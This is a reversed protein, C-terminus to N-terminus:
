VVSVSDVYNTFISFSIITKMSNEDIEANMDVYEEMKKTFDSTFENCYTQFGRTSFLPDTNRGSVEKSKIFKSYVLRLKGRMSLIDSPSYGRGTPLTFLEKSNKRIFHAYFLQGNMRRVPNKDRYNFYAGSAMTGQVEKFFTYDLFPSRHILHSQQMCLEAGFYNRLSEEWMLYYLRANMPLQSNKKRVSELENMLKQYIKEFHDTNLFSYSPFLKLFDKLAHPLGSQLWYFFVSTTLVGDLHSARLLESGCNGSVMIGSRQSLIESGYHYHARGITSLGNSEIVIQKASNFYAETLYKQDILIPQYDIGARKSIMVPINVDDSEKTGFSYAIFEKKNRICSSVISRGDFGSTLAVNFLENPLYESLQNSFTDVLGPLSKKLSKPSDQFLDSIETHKFFEWENDWLKLFSNGAMQGIGSICTRNTLTYNFLIRELFHCDDIAIQNMYPLLDKVQDSVYIRNEVRTYFVPLLSFMSNFILVLRESYYIGNFNGKASNLWYVFESMTGKFPESVLDGFYIISGDSTNLQFRKKGKLDDKVVLRCHSNLLVSPPEVKAIGEQFDYEILFSM